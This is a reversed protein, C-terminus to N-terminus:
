IGKIFDFQHLFSLALCLSHQHHFLFHPHIVNFDFKLSHLRNTFQSFPSIELSDFRLSDIQTYFRIHKFAFINQLNVFIPSHIKFIFVGELLYINDQPLTICLNWLSIRWKWRTKDKEKERRGDKANRIRFRDVYRNQMFEMSCSNTSHIFTHIHVYFPLIVSIIMHIGSCIPFYTREKPLKAKTSQM